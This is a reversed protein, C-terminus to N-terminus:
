SSSDEGLGRPITSSQRAESPQELQQERKRQEDRLSEVEEALAVLGDEETLGKYRRIKLEAAKYERDISDATQRLYLSRERFKFYGTFGASIGVAGTLFVAAWRLM